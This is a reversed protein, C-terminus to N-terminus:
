RQRVWFFGGVLGVLFLVIGAINSTSTALSGIANGTVNPSLLALGGVIGIIATVASATGELGKRKSRLLEGLRREELEAM